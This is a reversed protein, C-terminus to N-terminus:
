LDVTCLGAAATPRLKYLPQRYRSRGLCVATRAVASGFLRLRGIKKEESQPMIIVVADVDDELSVEEPLPEGGEGLYHWRQEMHHLLAFGGDGDRLLVLNGSIDLADRLSGAHHQVSLGMQDLRRIEDSWKDSTVLRRFGKLMLSAVMQDPGCLETVAKLIAPGDLERTPEKPTEPLSIEMMEVKKLRRNDM